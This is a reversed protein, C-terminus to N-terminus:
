PRKSMIEHRTKIEQVKLSFEKIKSQAIGIGWVKFEGILPMGWSKKITKGGYNSHSIKWLVQMKWTYYVLFRGEM